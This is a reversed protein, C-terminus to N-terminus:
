HRPPARRIGNAVQDALESVARTMAAVVGADGAGQVPIAFTSHKALLTREARGDTISWNAVMVVQHDPRAELTEVDVLVQRAPSSAPQATTVHMAPLQTTLDAALARAVGASLREAWHGTDSPIVQSGSRTIIDTTDLYGPVRVRAVEIVPLRSQSTSATVVRQPNGLVYMRPPPGSRGCAALLLLVAGSLPSLRRIM